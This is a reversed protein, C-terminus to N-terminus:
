KLDLWNLDAAQGSWNMLLVSEVANARKPEPVAMWVAFEVASELDSQPATIVVGENEVSHRDRVRDIIADLEDGHENSQSVIYAVKEILLLIVFETILDKDLETGGFLFAAAVPKRMHSLAEALSKLNPEPLEFVDRDNVRALFTM